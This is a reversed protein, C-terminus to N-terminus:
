RSRGQRRLADMQRGNRPGWRRHVTAGHRDGSTGVRCRRQHGAGARCTGERQGQHFLVEAFRERAQGNRPELKLWADLNAAASPWDTRQEAVFALGSYAEVLLGERTPGTLTGSGALAAARDFHLQADTLHQDLLALRGFLLYVEPLNPHEVAALELSERGMEPQNLRLCLKAFMLRAPPLNSHNKAASKLLVQCQVYDRAKFREIALNIEAIGEPLQVPQQPLSVVTISGAWAEGLSVLVAAAAMVLRTSRMM